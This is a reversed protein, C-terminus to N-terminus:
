FIWSFNVINSQLNLLRKSFNCLFSGTVEHILIKKIHGIQIVFDWAGFNHVRRWKRIYFMPGHKNMYLQRYYPLLAFISVPTELFCLVDFKRFFRVNGVGQYACMRTRIM